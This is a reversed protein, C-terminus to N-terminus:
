LWDRFLVPPRFNYLMFFHFAKAQLVHECFVTGSPSLLKGNIVFNLFPGILVTAGCDPLVATWLGVRWQVCDQVMEM